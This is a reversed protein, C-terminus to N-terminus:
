TASIAARHFVRNHGVNLINTWMKQDLERAARSVSEFGKFFLTGPEFFGADDVVLYGGQRVLPAYLRLDESVEEYRHGGDVYVVDFLEAAVLRHTDAGQSLGRIISVRDESLEFEKFIKSVDVSFDSDEHLNGVHADEHYGRDFLMRLRHLLRAHPPKGSLPTVGVIELDFSLRRAILAWLSLVQGKYVGIELMRANDQARSLESLLLFWLYHFARDGFGWKNEEIWDRHRRLFDTQNTMETFHSWVRDNIDGTSRYSSAFDSLSEGAVSLESM